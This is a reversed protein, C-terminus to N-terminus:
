YKFGKIEDLLDNFLVKISSKSTELWVLPYKSDIIEIKCSRMYGQFAESIKLISLGDYFPIEHLLDIKKLHKIRPKEILANYYPLKQFLNKSRKWGLFENKYRWYM